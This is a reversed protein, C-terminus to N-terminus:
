SIIQQYTEFYQKLAEKIRQKRTSVNTTSLGTVRSIEKNNCGELYLLIIAKDLPKLKEIFQYLYELREETTPDEVQFWENQQRYAHHTKDRSGAKRLFSISVNIAVRYTWTSLAYSADYRPYAKWLQLMIDQMLDKRDESDQCYIRAVKAILKKYSELYEVFANEQPSLEKM